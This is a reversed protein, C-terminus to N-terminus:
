RPTLCQIERFIAIADGSVSIVSAKNMVQQQFAEVPDLDGALENSPIFFRMEMLSVPADDNQHFELTVENKGTSSQSVHNLPIEFATNNGIDFSLVSGNFKATGWNWGKLSLEKELTDKKYTNSFFKAIKERESDKFGTFRHLTGNKLFIRLGWSGGFNQFNVIDLDGAQLQEVKGTKSNKFIIAQDTM